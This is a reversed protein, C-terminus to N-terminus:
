KLKYHLRFREKLEECPIDEQWWYFCDYCIWYGTKAPVQIRHIVMEHCFACERKNM